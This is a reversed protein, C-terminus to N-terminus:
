VRLRPRHRTGLQADHQVGRRCRAVVHEPKVSGEFDPSTGYVSVGAVQGSGSFTESANFRIRLIRGNPMWAYTQTYLSLKTSYVGAGFGDNPRDGLEDYKGTPFTEEINLATTPIWSGVRYQTLRYQALFSLDGFGVGSSNPGGSVTTYGATPTVGINLRDTLGYIIYTFSGFGNSHQSATLSGNRDYSGYKIVDYLYPEVLVHGRPLTSANPALMPGTWWADALSQRAAPSPSPSPAQARAIAGCATFAIAIALLTARVGPYRSARRARSPSM